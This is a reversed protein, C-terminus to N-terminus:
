NDICCDIRCRYGTGTGYRYEFHTNRTNWTGIGPIETITVAPIGYELIGPIGPIGTYIGPIGPYEVTWLYRYELYEVTNWTNWTNQYEV